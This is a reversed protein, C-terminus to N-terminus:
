LKEELKDIRVHARVGTEKSDKIGHRTESVFMGVRFVFIILTVMTGFSIAVNIQMLTDTM